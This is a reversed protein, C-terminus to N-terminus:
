NKDNRIFGIAKMLKYQNYEKPMVEKFIRLYDTNILLQGIYQEPSISEEDFPIQCKKSIERCNALSIEPLFTKANDETIVTIDYRAKRDLCDEQKFHLDTAPFHTLSHEVHTLLGMINSLIMRGYQSYQGNLPTVTFPRKRTISDREVRIRESGFLAWDSDGALKAIRRRHEVMQSLIHRLGVKGNSDKLQTFVKKIIDESMDKFVKQKSATANTTPYCSHNNNKM